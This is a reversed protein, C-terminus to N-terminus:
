RVLLQSKAVILWFDGTAGEPEVRCSMALKVGMFVGGGQDLRELFRADIQFSTSM